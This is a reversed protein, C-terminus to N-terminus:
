PSPVREGPGVSRTGSVHLISEGYLTHELYVMNPLTMKFFVMVFQKHDTELVKVTFNQLGDNGATHIGLNM